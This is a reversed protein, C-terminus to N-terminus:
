AKKRAGILALLSQIFAVDFVGNSVLGLGLGYVATWVTTLGNFMGLDKWAGFFAVIFAVAWSVIQHFQSSKTNFVKTNLYGSVIVVLSIAATWSIFYISLDIMTKHKLKLLFVNKLIILLGILFDKIFLISFDTFRTAFLLLRGALSGISMRIHFM